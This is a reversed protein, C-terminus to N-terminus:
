RGPEQGLFSVPHVQLTGAVAAISAMSGNIPGAQDAVAARLRLELRGATGTRDEVWDIRACEQRAPETSIGVERANKVRM